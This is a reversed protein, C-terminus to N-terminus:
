ALRTLGSQAEQSTCRQWETVLGPHGVIQLFVASNEQHELVLHLGAFRTFPDHFLTESPEFLKLRTSGLWIGFGRVKYYLIRPTKM